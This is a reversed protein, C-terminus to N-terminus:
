GERRSLVGPYISNEMYVINDGAAVFMYNLNILAFIRRHPFSPAPRSDLNNKVGRLFTNYDVMLKLLDVSPAVASGHSNAETTNSSLGFKFSIQTKKQFYFSESM